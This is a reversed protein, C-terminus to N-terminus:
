ERMKKKFKDGMEGMKFYGVGMMEVAPHYKLLGTIKFIGFYIIAWTGAWLSICVAAYIQVGLYEGKQDYDSIFGKHNDFIACAILGWIGNAYHVASAEVPDDINMISLLKVFFSYVFGAIIGIVIAAWPEIVNCPATVAVLGALVGNCMSPADYLHSIKWCRQRPKQCLGMKLIPVKFFYAIAGGAAGGLITNIIIKGINNGGEDAYLTLASGGNFFFWGVYLIFTGLALFVSSSTEVEFNPNKYEETVAKQLCAIDQETLLNDEKM